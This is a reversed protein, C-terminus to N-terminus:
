KFPTEMFSFNYKRPPYTKDLEQIAVIEDRKIKLITKFTYLERSILKYDFYYVWENEEKDSKSMFDISIIEGNKLYVIDHNVGVISRKEEVEDSWLFRRKKKEENM